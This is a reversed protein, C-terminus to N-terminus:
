CPVMVQILVDFMQLGLALFRMSPFGCRLSMTLKSVTGQANGAFGSSKYFERMLM